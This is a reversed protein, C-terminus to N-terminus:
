AVISLRPTPPLLGATEALKSVIEPTADTAIDIDAVSVGFLANRVCGGVLLAQYGAMALVACLAQTGPHNLWDGSIKM